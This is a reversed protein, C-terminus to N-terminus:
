TSLQVLVYPGFIPTSIHSNYTSTSKSVVLPIPKTARHYQIYPITIQCNAKVNLHSTPTKQHPELIRIAVVLGSNEPNPEPPTNCKYRFTSHKAGRTNRTPPLQLNNYDKTPHQIYMHSHKYLSLYSTFNVM